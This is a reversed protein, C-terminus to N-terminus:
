CLRSLPRPRFVAVVVMCGGTLLVLLIQHGMGFKCTIGEVTSNSFPLAWLLCLVPHLLQWGRAIDLFASLNPKPNLCM